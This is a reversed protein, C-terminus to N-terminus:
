PRTELEGRYHRYLRDLDPLEIDLDDIGYGCTAVWRIVDVKREPLCTLEVTRGNLKRCGVGDPQAGTLMKHAGDAKVRILVPLAAQRRLETLSGEAVVEGRNIVIIRDAHAQLESLAHSSLLIAAGKARREDILAYFLRRLDPDLGTTPEDLILLEPEGLLAQALGLRQRMGKSYTRIRKRAADALGVVALGDLCGGVPSEKLRAFYRLAELGTMHPPFTITEPLYGIRRAAKDRGSQHIDAGFVKLTGASPSILGLIMKMLTTKGAGNHGILAVCEGATINFSVNRVAIDGHFTKGVRDIDILPAQGVESIHTM